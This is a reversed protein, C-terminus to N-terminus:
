ITEFILFFIGFDLSTNVSFIGIAIRKPWFVAFVRPCIIHSKNFTGYKSEVLIKSGLIKQVFFFTLIM